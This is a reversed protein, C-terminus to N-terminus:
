EESDLCKRLQERVETHIAELIKDSESHEFLELQEQLEMNNLETLQQIMIDNIWRLDFLTEIQIRVLQEPQELDCQLIQFLRENM